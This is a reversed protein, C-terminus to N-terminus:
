RSATRPNSITVEVRRNQQRGTASDNGAVPDSEGRGSATLRSADVGQRRLYASVSEARRESLSQNSSQSGVSDTYGEIHATREPYKNLFAELKDLHGTTGGNLEAKGTTFLVDGLTLVLGRDTVRADLADIQRQLEAAQYASAAAQDASAAAASNAADTQIRAQSAVLRQTQADALAAQAQDKANDAERTRADLRANQGQAVLAARQDELFRTHAQATAIEVKHDAIYVRYAALDRDSQPQEAAVVAREAEATAQPARGALDRNSQLRTLKARADDAGAPKQPAVACAALLIAAISLAILRPETATAETSAINKSLNNM